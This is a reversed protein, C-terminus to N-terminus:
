EKGFLKIVYETVKEIVATLVAAVIFAGWAMAYTSFRFRYERNYYVQYFIIPFLVIWLLLGIKEYLTAQKRYEENMGRVFSAVPVLYTMGIAVGFLIRSIIDENYTTAAYIAPIAFAAINIIKSKEM